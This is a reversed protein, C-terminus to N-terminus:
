LVSINVDDFILRDPLTLGGIDWLPSFPQDSERHLLAQFTEQDTQVGTKLYSLYTAFDVAAYTRYRVLTEASLPGSARMLTEGWAYAEMEFDRYRREESKTFRVPPATEVKEILARYRDSTLAQTLHGFVHALMFAQQEDARAESLKIVGDCLNAYEVALSAPAPDIGVEVRLGYRSALFRSVRELM